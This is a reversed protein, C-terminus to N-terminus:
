KAEHKKAARWYRLLTAASPPSSGDWMHWERAANAARHLLALPPQAHKLRKLAHLAQRTIGMFQATSQVSPERLLEWFQRWRNM